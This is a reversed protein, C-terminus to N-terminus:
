ALAVSVSRGGIGRSVWDIFNKGFPLDAVLISLGRIVFSVLGCLFFYFVSSIVHDVLGSIHDM